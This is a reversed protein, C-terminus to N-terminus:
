QTEGSGMEGRTVALVLGPEILLNIVFHAVICPLLSRGALLFVIGLMIGLFGTAATAGAAARFSKGMLGWVGHVAGFLLGAGLVQVVAGYGHAMLWNMTWRRFMVEELIGSVIALAIALLKLFSPRFLNERVSPLRLAFGVFIVTAFVAAIWGALHGSMGPAFGLYRIFRWGSVQLNMLVWAGELATIIALIIGSKREATM